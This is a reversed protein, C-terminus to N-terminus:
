LIDIILSEVGKRPCVRMNGQKVLASTGTAPARAQFYGCERGVTAGGRSGKGSRCGLFRLVAVPFKRLETM